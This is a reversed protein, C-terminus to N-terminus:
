ISGKTLWGDRDVCVYEPYRIAGPNRRSLVHKFYFFPQQSQDRFFEPKIRM